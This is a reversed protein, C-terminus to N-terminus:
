EARMIDSTNIKEKLRPLSLPNNQLITEAENVHISDATGGKENWHYKSTLKILRERTEARVKVKKKKM